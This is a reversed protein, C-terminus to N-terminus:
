RTSSSMMYSMATRIPTFRPSGLRGAIKSVPLFNSYKRRRKSLGRRNNPEIRSEKPGSSVPGTNTPFKLTTNSPRRTRSNPRRPWALLDSSTTCLSAYYPIPYYTNDPTPVKTLVAFKRTDTRMRTEGDDGPMRGMRVMLDCLPANLDLLDIIEVQDEMPKAKRWNAYYLKDIRGDSDAVGLRCYCAEKRILRIIKSGDGNLIIVNVCFAFYKFDQCVGLYNTPINNGVFFSDIEEKVKESCAETNYLLGSGYCIEANFMQCTSLTEDREILELIDYPLQDDAGWPMYRHKDGIPVPSIDGTERFETKSLESSFLAKANIGPIDDISTFDIPEFDSM